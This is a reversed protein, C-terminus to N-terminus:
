MSVRVRGALLRQMLGKKQYQLSERQQELLEIEQDSTRLVDAIRRQEEIPPVPILANRVAGLTLGFRTVGNALKVFQRHVNSSLLAEKLFFGSVCRRPRLIALHYGCLVNELDEVVVCAAAIDERTESDKTIIVDEEELAFKAVEDETASAEMFGMDNHIYDNNFVDVYNCLLVPQESPKSKKDVNSFRIEAVDSLRQIAWEKPYVGLVTNQTSQSHVFGTFRRMGTLLQQRLARKRQHAVAIHQETLAIAQNWADIVDAIAEQENLPPLPVVLKRFESLHVRRKEVLSGIAVVDYLDILQRSTLLEHLYRPDCRGELPKLINYYASVAVVSKHQSRAIAGFRLNMPNYVFDGPYVLRYQNSGEDRLLFSRNYRDTKPIIGLGIVLSHLPYKRTDSSTERREEFLHGLAVM